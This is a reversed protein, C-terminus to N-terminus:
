REGVANASHRATRSCLTCTQDSLNNGKGWYQIAPDRVIRSQAMPAARLDFPQILATTQIDHVICLIAFIPPHRHDTARRVSVCYRIRSLQSVACLSPRAFSLFKTSVLPRKTAAVTVNTYTHKSRSGAVCRNELLPTRRADDRRRGLSHARM